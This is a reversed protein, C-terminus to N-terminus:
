PLHTITVVLKYVQERHLKKLLSIMVKIFLQVRVEIIQAPAVEIVDPVVGHKEMSRGLASSFFRSSSVLQRRLAFM